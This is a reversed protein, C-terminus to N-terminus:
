SVSEKQVAATVMQQRLKPKDERLPEVVGESGDVFFEESFRPEEQRHVIESVDCMRWRAKEKAELKKTRLRLDVDLTEVSDAFGGSAFSTGKRRGYVSLKENKADSGEVPVKEAGELEKNVGELCATVDDM